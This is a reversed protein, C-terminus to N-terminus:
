THSAARDLLFQFLLPVPRATAYSQQGHTWATGAIDLHAWSYKQTFRSLFCAATVSGAGGTGINAMDAVSSKLSDQYEEQLPLRWVADTATQSAQLVQEALAENNSFLGSNIHGLAIVCAGTLTAIDIVAAPKFREAYTLADCLILRGEADTNLVEITQGSMSTVVDGPKTASGSPMNECTPVLGIVNLKLGLEAVARVTGFVTAAGCMDFKMADMNAAPKISIGGSDFTIGKGVLVIPAQKAAGGEYKFVIFKPPEISGKAVSLFSGMKLAEIQKQSLVEVKLKSKAGVQNVLKRATEALYTPTCFNSPLNALDKTLAMGNALAIGEKIAQQAYALEKTSKTAVAIVVKELSPISIDETKKSTGRMATFRYALDRALSVTTRVSWQMANTGQIQVPFETLAWLVDVAKTLLLAKLAARTMKEFQKANLETGQKGAQVLLIRKAAVGPVEHLLQTAGLKSGLEKEKILRTILGRSAQDIQKAIGTLGKDEHVGVVLCATKEKVFDFVNLGKKCEKISFKM